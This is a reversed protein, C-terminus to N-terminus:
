PKNINIYCNSNRNIQKLTQKVHVTFKTRTCNNKFHRLHIDIIKVMRSFDKASYSTIGLPLMETMYIINEPMNAM